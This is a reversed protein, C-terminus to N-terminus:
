FFEFKKSITHFIEFKIEFNFALLGIFQDNEFAPTFKLTKIIAIANKVNIISGNSDLQANEANEKIYSTHNHVFVIRVTGSSHLMAFVNIQLQIGDEQPQANLVTQVTNVKHAFVNTEMGFM